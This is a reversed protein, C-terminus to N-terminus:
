NITDFEELWSLGALISTIFGFGLVILAFAQTYLDAIDGFGYIMMYMGIMIALIGSFFGFAPSKISVGVVFLVMTTILLFIPVSINSTGGTTTVVFVYNWTDTGDTDGKGNVIYEGLESTECFTANYETGVRTMEIESSLANNTRNPYRISTINNYTCDDCIQLLEICDYQQVTGLNAISASAFSFFFIGILMTLLITKRM